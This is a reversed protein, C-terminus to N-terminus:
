RGPRIWDGYVVYSERLEVVIVRNDPCAALHEALPTVDVPAVASGEAGCTHSWQVTEAMREINVNVFTPKTTTGRIALKTNPNAHPTWSNNGGARVM